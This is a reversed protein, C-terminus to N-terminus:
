VPNHTQYPSAEALSDSSSTSSESYRAAMNLERFEMSEGGLECFESSRDGDAADCADPRIEGDWTDSRLLVEVKRAFLAFLRYPTLPEVM